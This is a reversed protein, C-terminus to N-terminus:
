TGGDPITGPCCVDDVYPCRAVLTPVGGDGVGVTTSVVQPPDFLMSTSACSGGAPLCRAGTGPCTSGQGVCVNSQELCANPGGDATYIFGDVTPPMGGDSRRGYCDCPPTTTTLPDCTQCDQVITARHLCACANKWCAEPAYCGAFVTAADSVIPTSSANVCASMTVGLGVAMAAFGGIIVVIGGFSVTRSKKPSATM